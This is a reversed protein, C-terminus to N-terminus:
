LISELTNFGFAQPAATESLFKENLRSEATLFEKDMVGGAWRILRDITPTPVDVIQAVGKLVCQGRPIDETLYRYNFDPAFRGNPSKVMPARLNQYGRNTCFISRMTTPDVLEDAYMERMMDDLGPVPIPQGSLMAVQQAIALVENSTKTMIDATFDDTNQYFLPAEALPEQYDHFLGFMITPHIVQNAPTLTVTLFNPLPDVKTVGILDTLVDAVHQANEKPETAVKINRKHGILDVESGYKITRCQYPLQNTGSVIVKAAAHPGLTNRAVWNFGGQGPLAVVICGDKLYPGIAKLTDVHAFSPLPVLIVDAAPVVDKALASVVDPRGCTVQGRSHCQVGKDSANLGDLFREAEDQYPAFVGVWLDDRAGMYSAMVHAANGGGCICIRM